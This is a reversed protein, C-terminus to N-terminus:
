RAQRIEALSVDRRSVTASRLPGDIPVRMETVRDTVPVLVDRTKGDAWTLTVLVPLDFLEGSQEFRLVAVGGATTSESRYSFTLQPLATGFIWREFFRGLKRDSAQEMALRFDETGVKRFRSGLYFQRLGRFFAEDGVLQRLMHLAMAGKNYVIARFARGDNRIHGVRYGLSVPGQSSENMAWRRMRRLVNLFVDPGRNENAYLAAFYQAFGESIWQEHYNQWGVGHGWWQHAVEHAMFFEPYNEFAAPDNRWVLPSNPLPQNLQAFYPPSHGGPTLNEVLAITFSPYPADGVLSQYFKVVSAARTLVQKGDRTQRPNTQATLRISPFPDADSAATSPDGPPAPADPRDFTVEQQDSPIFRSVIFSLYRAPRKADFVYVHRANVPDRGLQVQPPGSPEGSAVCGYAIPVSIRIHATAYDSITSQPYWFSRNSYLFSPEAKPATIDDPLTELGSRQGFGGEDQALGLTERDPAQPELRGAYSVTLTVAEHEDLLTPLNILLTNQNTVRLYFLRGFKDSTLSRVTLTDALRITLQGLGAARAKLRMKTRGEIWQRQPISTIDIDYDLVDYQALDDENYFRGRTELKEKSAYLAINRKRRREFLSVDEPESASRAYTLTEFRKTRIEALFDDPGPLLTWAERTLDALDVAFSKPSEDAFVQQARKLTRADVPRETLASDDYHTEPTGVRVFAAEFPTDLVDSGAFIRVQGRETDPAPSFRMQGRGILVLGTVGRETDISFATGEAMTLQLDEATISLNRVDFQRTDNLTLRFLNDVSSVVQQRIIAWSDGSRRLFLQWTAVRARNGFEIFADVTLAEVNGPIGSLTLTSRERQQVVVRTAGPALEAEAFALAEDRNGLPGQLAVYGDADAALVIPELTRVFAQLTTDDDPQDGPAPSAQQVPAQARLVAPCAAVLVAAILCGGLAGSMRM